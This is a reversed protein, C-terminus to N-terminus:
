AHALEPTPYADPRRDRLHFMARRATDLEAALDLTAVALGAEVGTDARIDGGPGVIKAGAVFRLSGFHGAQNASAWVVQNELARAADFLDFRKKWRDEALDTAGATRAAPWASMCAIVEAGDLALARAAEPFAKDYCIMMGMRGIPTDFATFADGAAYALSEGLPQHVKRHVGLLGDGTVAVATNFRRDGDQECFGFTLTLDGAMTIVRGIEPGDLALAPPLTRGAVPTAADGGPGGLASLYGGLAAEPLVLLNGGAARTEAILRGITTYAEELDRGFFAAAAAITLTM